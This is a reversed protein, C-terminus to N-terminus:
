CHLLRFRWWPWRWHNCCTSEVSEGNWWGSFCYTRPMFVLASRGWRPPREEFFEPEPLSKMLLFVSTGLMFTCIAYEHSQLVQGSMRAILFEEGVTLAYIALAVGLLFPWWVDIVHKALLTGIYVFIPGMLFRHAYAPMAMTAALRPWMTALVGDYTVAAVGWMALAVCIAGTVKSGVLRLGGGVFLQALVLGPLFWLHFALGGTLLDRRHFRWHHGPIIKSLLFYIAMWFLFPPLLRGIRKKILEWDFRDTPRLFYGSAIFFFPVAARCITSLLTTALSIPPHKAHLAVVGLLLFYRGADIGANRTRVVQEM